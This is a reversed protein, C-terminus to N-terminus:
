NNKNSGPVPGLMRRQPLYYLMIAMGQPLFCARVKWVEDLCGPCSQQCCRNEQWHARGRQLSEKHRGGTAKEGDGADIKLVLLKDADPHEEVAKIVAVRLDIESFDQISITM